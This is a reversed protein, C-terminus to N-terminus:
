QRRSYTRKTTPTRITCIERSNHSPSQAFLKSLTSSTAPWTSRMCDKVIHCSSDVIQPHQNTTQCTRNRSILIRKSLPYSGNEFSSMMNANLQVYGIQLHSVYKECSQLNEQGSHDKQQKVQQTAYYHLMYLHEPEAQRVMIEEGILWIQSHRNKPLFSSCNLRLQPKVVKTTVYRIVAFLEMESAHKSQKSQKSM